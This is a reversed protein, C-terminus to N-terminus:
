ESDELDLDSLDDDDVGLADRYRTRVEELDRLQKQYTNIVKRTDKVMQTLLGLRSPDMRDETIKSEAEIAPICVQTLKRIAFSSDATFNQCLEKLSKPKAFGSGSRKRTEVAKFEDRILTRLERATLGTNAAICEFRLRKQKDQVAILEVVHSWTLRDGCPRKRECLREYEEDTYTRAFVATKYLAGLDWDLSRCLAGVANPGATDDNQVELALKGLKRYMDLVNHSSDNIYTLARDRYYQLVGSLGKVYDAMVRNDEARKTIIEEHKQAITLATTM